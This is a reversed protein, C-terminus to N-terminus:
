NYNKRSVTEESIPLFGLDRGRECGQTKEEKKFLVMAGAM